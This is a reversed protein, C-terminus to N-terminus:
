LINLGRGYALALVWSLKRVSCYFVKVSVTELSLLESGELVNGNALQNDGVGHIKGHRADVKQPLLSTM